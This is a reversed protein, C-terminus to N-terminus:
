SLGSLSSSHGVICLVTFFAGALFFAITWQVFKMKKHLVKSVYFNQHAYEKEIQIYEKLANEYQQPTEHVIIDEWFILGKDGHPLRPFLETAALLISLTLFVLAIFHCPFNWVECFHDKVLYQIILFNLTLLAVAKADSVTIYHNLYDNVGKGFGQPIVQQTSEEKECKGDIIQSDIKKDM